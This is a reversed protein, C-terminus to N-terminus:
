LRVVAQTQVSEIMALGVALSNLGDQLSAAEIREGRVAAAFSEMQRRHASGDPCPITEMDRGKPYCTLADSGDLVAAGQEGYIEMREGTRGFRQWNCMLNVIVPGPYTAVAAVYDAPEPQSPDMLLGDAYVRQPLGFFWNALDVHHALMDLIVGGCLSFDAFWDGPQRRYVGLPLDINCFRVRGLRGEDLLRKLALTKAMHRRVFGLVFPKPSTRGLSAMADRDAATRGLPKECFVAKGAECAAQVGERHCYSPSCVLVGDVAPDAALAAASAAPRAGYQAQFSRAAEPRIDYVAALKVGDLQALEKAHVNGMRGAGIVGMGITKM